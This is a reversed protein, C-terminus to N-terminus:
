GVRYLLQVRLFLMNSCTLYLSNLPICNKKKKKSFFFFLKDFLANEDLWIKETTEGKEQHEMNYVAISLDVNGNDCWHRLVLGGGPHGEEKVEVDEDAGERCAEPEANLVDIIFADKTLAKDHLLHKYKKM